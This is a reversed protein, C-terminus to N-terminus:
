PAKTRGAIHAILLEPRDLFLFIPGDGGRALQLLTLQADCGPKLLLVLNPADFPTLKRTSHLAYDNRKCWALRSEHLRECSAIADLPISGFGRAGIDLELSTSTLVHHRRGRVHWRDGLVWVLSYTAIACFILHLTRTQEPTKAMVSAILVDVPMEVFLAVLVIYIVTDYSGRELYGLPIGTPRAPLQRRLVSNVMGSWMARELRMYSLFEPPALAWLRRPWTAGRAKAAKMRRVSLPICALDKAVILILPAVLLFHMFPRQWAAPFLRSILLGFFMILVGYGILSLWPIIQLGDRYRHM